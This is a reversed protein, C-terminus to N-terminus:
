GLRGLATNDAPAEAGRVQRARASLEGFWLMSTLEVLASTVYRRYTGFAMALREAAEQQTPTPKIFTLELVRSQKEGRPSACRMSELAELFIGRLAPITETSAPCGRTKELVLHSQLLANSKLGAVSLNCKLARRVSQVFELTPEHQEGEDDVDRPEAVESPPGEVARPASPPFLTMPSWQICGNASLAVATRVCSELESMNYPWEHLLLALGMGPDMTIRAPDPSGVRLLAQALLTGLDERRERLPPLSVTFGALRALLDARIAPVQPRLDPSARMSSVLAAENPRPDSRLMPLLALEAVPSLQEIESFLLTGGAAREFCRSLDSLLRDGAHTAIKDRGLLACDVNIFEGQRGAEAHLARAVTDKGSGAEGVL